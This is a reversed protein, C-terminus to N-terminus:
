SRTEIPPPVSVWDWREGGANITRKPTPDCQKQKPQRGGGLVAGDREDEDLGSLEVADIWAGLAAAHITSGDTGCDEM